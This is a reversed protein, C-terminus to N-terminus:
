EQEPRPIQHPDIQSRRAAALLAPHPGGDYDRIKLKVASILRRNDTRDCRVLRWPWGLNHQGVSQRRLTCNKDILNAHKVVGLAAKTPEAAHGVLYEIFDPRSESRQEPDVSQGDADLSQKARGRPKDGLGARWLLLM